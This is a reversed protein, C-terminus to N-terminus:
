KIFDGAAGFGARRVGSGGRQDMFDQPTPKAEAARRSDEDAASEEKPKGSACAGLVLGVTLALMLITAFSFKKLM